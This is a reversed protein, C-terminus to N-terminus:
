IIQVAGQENIRANIVQFTMLPENYDPDDGDLFAKYVLAMSNDMPKPYQIWYSDIPSCERCLNHMTQMVDKMDEFVGGFSSVEGGNSILCYTM